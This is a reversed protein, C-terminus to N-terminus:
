LGSWMKEPALLLVTQAKCPAAHLLWASAHFHVQKIARNPSCPQCSGISLCFQIALLPQLVPEVQLRLGTLMAINHHKSRHRQRGGPTWLHLYAKSTQNIEVPDPQLVRRTPSPPISRTVSAPCSPRPSQPTPFPSTGISPGGGKETLSKQINWNM